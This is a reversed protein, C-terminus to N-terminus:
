KLLILGTNAARYAVRKVQPTVAKPAAKTKKKLLLLLSTISPISPKVPPTITAALIHLKSIGAM